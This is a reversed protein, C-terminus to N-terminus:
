CSVWVRFGESLGLIEWNESLIRCIEDFGKLECLLLKRETIPGSNKLLVTSFVISRFPPVLHAEHSGLTKGKIPWDCEKPHRCCM